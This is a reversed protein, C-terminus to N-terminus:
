KPFEFKRIKLTLPNAAVKNEITEKFDESDISFNNSKQKIKKKTQFFHLYVRGIPLSITVWTSWKLTILM